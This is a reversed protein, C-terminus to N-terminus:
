ASPPFLRGVDLEIADFPAIRALDGEGWTGLLVWARERSTFASLLRAEPDVSWFHPVGSNLYLAPKVVRDIRVSSPSVIECVWDPTARVPREDPFAPVRERRWGSLDPRVVDHESLAVDTETVIWWGGPGRPDDDFPGGVLGGLSRQIRGHRPLPSPALHFEGDILETRDGEPLSYLDDWTHLTRASSSM